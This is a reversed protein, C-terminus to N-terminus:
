VHQESIGTSFLYFVLIVISTSPLLCLIVPHFSLPSSTFAYSVRQNTLKASSEQKVEGTTVETKMSFSKKSFLTDLYKIQVKTTVKTKLQYLSKNINMQTNELSCM